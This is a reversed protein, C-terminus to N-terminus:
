HHRGKKITATHFFYRPGFEVEIQVILRGSNAQRQFARIVKAYYQMKRNWKM